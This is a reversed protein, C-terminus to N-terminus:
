VVVCLYFPSPSRMTAVKGDGDQFVVLLLVVSRFACGMGHLQHGNVKCVVKVPKVGKGFRRFETIEWEDGVHLYGERGGNGGSCPRSVFAVTPSAREVEEEDEKVETRDMGEVRDGRGQRRTVASREPLIEADKGAGVLLALCLEYMNKRVASFTGFASSRERPKTPRSSTASDVYRVAPGLSTSLQANTNAVQEQEEEQM